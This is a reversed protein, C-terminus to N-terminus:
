TILLPLQILCPLGDLQLLLFWPCQRRLIPIDGAIDGWAGGLAQHDPVLHDGHMRPGPVHAAARNQSEVLGLVVDLEVSLVKTDAQDGVSLDCGDFAVHRVGLDDV